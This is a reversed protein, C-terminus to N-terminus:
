KVKEMRKNLLDLSFLIPLFHLFSSSKINVFSVIMLPFYSIGELFIYMVLIILWKNLINVSNEFVIEYLSFTSFLICIILGLHWEVSCIMDFSDVKDSFFCVVRKYFYLLLFPTVILLSVKIFKNM